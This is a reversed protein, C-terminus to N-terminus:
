GVLAGLRGRATLPERPAGARCARPVRAPRFRRHGHRRGDSRAGCRGTRSGDYADYEIEEPVNQEGVFVERRLQFCAALDSEGAARRTGAFAPASM